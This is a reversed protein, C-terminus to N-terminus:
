SGRPYRLRPEEVGFVPLAVTTHKLWEREKQFEALTEPFFPKTIRFRFIVVIGIGILLLMGGLALASWGWEWHLGRATAASAAQDKSPLRGALRM